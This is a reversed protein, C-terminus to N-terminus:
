TRLMRIPSDGRQIFRWRARQPRREMLLTTSMVLWVRSSIPWGMCAKSRFLTAPRLMVTRRAASPSFIVVRSSFSNVRFGLLRTMQSASFGTASAPMMPPAFEPM